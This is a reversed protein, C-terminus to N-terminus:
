SAVQRGRVSSASQRKASRKSLTSIYCCHVLLQSSPQWGTVCQCIQQEYGPLIHTNPWWAWGDRAPQAPYGRGWARASPGLATIVEKQLIEVLCSMQKKIITGPLHSLYSLRSLKQKESKTGCVLVAQIAVEHRMCLIMIRFPEASSKQFDVSCFSPSIYSINFELPATQPPSSIIQVPYCPTPILEETKNKHKRKKKKKGRKPDKTKWAPSVKLIIELLNGRSGSFEYCESEWERQLNM